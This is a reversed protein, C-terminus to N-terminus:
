EEQEEKKEVVEFTFGEVRDGKSTHDTYSQNLKRHEEQSSLLRYLALQTTANEGEYWKKRLGQKKAVKNQDIMNKLEKYEESDTPFKRYFVSIDCPLNSVIEDIFICDNQKIAEKAQEFLEKKKYAM